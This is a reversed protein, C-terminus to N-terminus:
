ILQAPNYINFFNFKTKGYEVHIGLLEDDLNLNDVLTHTIGEKVLIGGQSPNKARQRHNMTYGSFRLRLNANEDTLKTEQISMIEPQTKLFLRLEEVRPVTLKFCNWQIIRICYQENM